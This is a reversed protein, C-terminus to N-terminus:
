VPVTGTSPQRVGIEKYVQLWDRNEYGAKTKESHVIAWPAGAPYIEDLGAEVGEVLQDYASQGVLDIFRKRFVINSPERLCRNFSQYTKTNIFM